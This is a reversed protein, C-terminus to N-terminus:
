RERTRRGRGHCDGALHPSPSRDGAPAPSSSDSGRARLLLACGRLAAGLTLCSSPRVQAMFTVVDAPSWGSKGAHAADRLSGLVAQSSGPIRATTRQGAGVGRRARHAQVKPRRPARRSNGMAGPLRPPVSIACVSARQLRPDPDDSPIFRVALEVGLAAHGVRDLYDIPSGPRRSTLQGPWAHAEAQDTVLSRFTLCSFDLPLPM